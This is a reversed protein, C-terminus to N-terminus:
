GLDPETRTFDPEESLQDYWDRTRGIDLLEDKHPTLNTYFVIPGLYFDALTPTGGVLFPDGARIEDVLGLFTRAKELTERHAAESPNGIFDPKIHYFAVGVLADYGYAHVLSVIEAVRARDWASEPLASPGERSAELYAVIADTERIRHGDIDLVPVKGFPHRALHEPQKPEGELVNVQVQDYAVDKRNLLIKATRVYTSGDFGYLTADAM